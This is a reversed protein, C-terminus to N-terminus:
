KAPPLGRLERNFEERTRRHQHRAPRGRRRRARQRGGGRPHAPGLGRVARHRRLRRPHGPDARHGQGPRRPLRHDVLPHVRARRARRGARRPRAGGPAAGRQGQARRRRQLLEDTFGDLFGRPDAELQPRCAARGHRRDLAGDPHDDDVQAPVAPDAAAFVVSHVRDEGHRASTAPWRAAAWRSGSSRSTAAPRARDARRRPRRHPHRLRLHVTAPSTPSGFGRRDYTVVRYGADTLAPSRDSWSAGSLPWGHILVVPRGSGGSDEDHIEVDGNSVTPM